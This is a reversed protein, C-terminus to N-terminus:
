SVRTSQLHELEPLLFSNKRRLGKSGHHKTKLVALREFVRELNKGEKFELKGLEAEAEVNSITNDPHYKQFLKKVIEKAVGGNCKESETFAIM